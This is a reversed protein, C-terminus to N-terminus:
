LAVYGITEEPYYSSVAAASQRCRVSDADIERSAASSPCPGRGFVVPSRMSKGWLWGCDGAPLFPVM